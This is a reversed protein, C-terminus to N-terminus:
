KSNNRESSCLEQDLVKSEIMTIKNKILRKQSELRTQNNISKFNDSSINEIKAKVVDLKTMIIKLLDNNIKGEKCINKELNSYLEVLDIFTNQLENLIKVGSWDIFVKWGDGDKTVDVKKTSIPVTNNQEVDLLVTKVAQKVREAISNINGKPTTDVSEAELLKGIMKDLDVINYIVVWREGDDTREINQITINLRSSINDPIFIANGALGECYDKKEDGPIDDSLYSMAAECNRDYGATLYNIVVSSITDRDKEQIRDKSTSCSVFVSIFLICVILRTIAVM